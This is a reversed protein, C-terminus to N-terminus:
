PASEEIRRAAEALVQSWRRLGAAYSHPTDGGYGNVNVAEGVAEAIRQSNSGPASKIGTIAYYAAVIAEAPTLDRM